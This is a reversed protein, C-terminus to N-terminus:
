FALNPYVAATVPVSCLQLLAVTNQFLMLM